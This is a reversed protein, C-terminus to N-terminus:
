SHIHEQAVAAARGENTCTATLRRHFNDEAISAGTMPDVERAGKLEQHRM